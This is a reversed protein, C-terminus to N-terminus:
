IAGELRGLAEVLDPALPAELEIREGSRPHAFILRHAHLFQRPVVDRSRRGYVSDGTVPHGISALHVRIQHTRGTEPRLELLSRGDVERIVHFRTRAERGDEVVAVKRRDRPHRGLPAEIVGDAPTVRGEVLAVYVKEVRREKLQQALALHAEDNKAVIILGSTDKDLRHVIGPRQRGGVRSLEPSRALVANVLTHSEHGASPHVALGAPKDIVLLDPDELVVQLPIAEPQPTKSPSPPVAVSVEQGIELPTGAKTPPRGDITVLGDVILRRARSRTVELLSRSVFLDLREGERDAILRHEQAM